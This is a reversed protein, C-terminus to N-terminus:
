QENNEPKLVDEVPPNYDKANYQSMAKPAMGILWMKVIQPMDKLIKQFVAGEEDSIKGLVHNILQQHQTAAAHLPQGVGIRIRWFNEGIYSIISKMGNHGGASGSPRMRIKGIPLSIEDYIVLLDKSTAGERQMLPFIADGSNNMYTQAKILMHAEGHFNFRATLANHKDHEFKTRFADALVDAVWFGANHRTFAYEEGPNGLGAIIM